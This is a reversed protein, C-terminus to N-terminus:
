VVDIDFCRHPISRHTSRRLQSEESRMDNWHSDIESRSSYPSILESGTLVLNPNSENVDNTLIGGV